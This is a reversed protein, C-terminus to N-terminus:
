PQRENSFGTVVRPETSFYAAPAAPKVETKQKYFDIMGNANEVQAHANICADGKDPSRQIRKIIDEKSEVQIGNSRIMWRPATLDALLEPDPPLAIDEGTQPDLAERFLWYWEARKNVFGLKGSKDRRISKESGNMAVAHEKIKERLYDFASSGVGIVDVQVKAESGNRKMLALGAVHPGDPTEKGPYADLADFWNDYRASLVTKDSGGRAVDVGLSTMPTTPKERDRWRQQALRVWESPIVQWPNDDRGATFSGFLLKSRLPEPLAQLTAVYGSERYVPNDEVSAFFFTRSLPTVIKGDKGVFPTGDPRETDVGDITTFWRLEGAKAPHPHNPELWPGFYRTVWEGEPDTPPNMAAVVRCRQGPKTPRNWGCLYRFQAETFHPLEDFAKLDHPQGQFKKEDGPDKVGAMILSRGDFLRFEKDSGNYTSHGDLLEHARDIMARLQVAERRFIISRHHQTVSLGLLLDTKGGGAAGGYGTVDALSDLTAKQPGPFPRWLTPPPPAEEQVTALLRDMEALERPTLYRLLEPLESKSPLALRSLTTQM